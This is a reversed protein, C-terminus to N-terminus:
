PLAGSLLIRGQIAPFPRKMITLESGMAASSAKAFMQARRQGTRHQSRQTGAVWDGKVTNAMLTLGLIGLVVHKCKLAQNM